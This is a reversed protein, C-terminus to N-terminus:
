TNRAKEVKCLIEFLTKAALISTTGSDYFPTVEVVDFGVVRDDCLGLILDLFIKTSLGEPEPNQVAPAFAPDVVDMDVTFYTRKVGELAKGITETIKQVGKEQIEMATFSQIGASEAYEWEEKSFARTGIQVIVDPQVEEYLRRMHTAHSISLGLCQDRLDLHADLCVLGLDGGGIGRTAGLTLTHEGGILALTKENRLLDRVVEELRTLTEGVNGSIHLDGLDHIKVAGLDSGSRISYREINLSAERIVRPAFKAGSRYTSTSDFPVGVVVFCARELSIQCGGFNDQVSVHLDFSTM